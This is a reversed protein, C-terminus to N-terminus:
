RLINHLYSFALKLYIKLIFCKVSKKFIMRLFFFFNWRSRTVLWVLIFIIALTNQKELLILSAGQGILIHFFFIYLKNKQKKERGKFWCQGDQKFICVFIILVPQTSPSFLKRILNVKVVAVSIYVLCLFM